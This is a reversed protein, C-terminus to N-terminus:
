CAQLVNTCGCVLSRMRARANEVTSGSSLEASPWIMCCACCTDLRSCISAHHTSPLGHMAPTLSRAMQLIHLRCALRRPHCALRSGGLLLGAAPRLLTNRAPQRWRRTARRLFRQRRSHLCLHICRSRLRLDVCRSQFCIALRPEM